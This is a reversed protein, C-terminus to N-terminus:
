RAMGKLGNWHIIEINRKIAINVRVFIIALIEKLITWENPNFFYRLKKLIKIILFIPVSLIGPYIAM